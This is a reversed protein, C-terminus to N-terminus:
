KTRKKQTSVMEIARQTKISIGLINCIQTREKYGTPFMYLYHIVLRKMLSLPLLNNELLTNLARIEEIPFSHYFDLKISIDILNVAVYNNKAAIEKFVDSLKDSGISRGTKKILSFAIFEFLQFVIQRAVQEIKEKEVLENKDIFRSIESLLGETDSSLLSYLFNIARLGILYSQEGLDYKPLGKLSGYYNKLVQGIIEINKFAFNLKSAIDLESIEPQKKTNNTSQDTKIHEYAHEDAAAYTKERHKQIDVNEQIALKPLEKLLNNLETVDKEFRVPEIEKFISKANNLLQELIFPDKSHHTLFLIINAASEVHLQKCLGIIETKINEQTINIAFHRAVFYYYVYKYKIRYVSQRELLIEAKILDNVMENFHLTVKYESCHATHFDQLTQLSVEQLDKKYVFYSLETIYSYHADFEDHPLKLKSLSHGILFGYYHGYTSDKLDHPKGAEISQLITLLFLPYSPVFNRGIITDIIRKAIDHSRVCEEETITKERGLSVWKNILKSRLSHGFELLQFQRFNSMLENSEVDSLTIGSLQFLDGGTILVNPYRKYISSLLQTRYKPSLQTNDFDDIILIKRSNELQTFREVLSHSYQKAFVKNVKKEFEIIDDSKIEQGELLVPIYENNYYQKYIYKCLTTKGAKDEGVIFILNSVPDIECLVKANLVNDYDKEDKTREAELDILNPCIFFDELILKQKHPHTFTAGPDNLFSEFKADIEFLRKNLNQFRKYSFWNAEQNKCSYHDDDWYYELIKQIKQQLDIFILNFGSNNPNDSDQLVSGEIFETYNGEFDDQLKKTPIHEHGTIVIDSTKEIHTKFDRQISHQQWNFPHHLLSIILSAKQKFVDSNHYHLPFHMFGPEEKKRSIWSTNYCYFVITYERLSFSIVNLLDDSYIINEKPLYISNFERWDKQVSVCTSIVSSDIAENGQTLITNILNNRVKSDNKTFDCDHNGPVLLVHLTRNSVKKIKTTLDDVFQMAHLYEDAQGSFAIDGTILLFIEDFDFTQNLFSNAFKEIKETFSNNSVKFHIDSAHIFM